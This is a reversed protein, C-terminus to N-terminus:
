AEDYLRESLVYEGINGSCLRGLEEKDKKMAAERAKTSSVGGGLGEVLEIRDAWGRDWGKGVSKGDGNKLQQLYDDQEAKAGWADDARYTVRLRHQSFLPRVSSLTHEPPYYKTDLIRTLTDFGVIHNQELPSSSISSYLPDATIAASKHLFYPHKTLAIDITIDADKSVSQLVNEAMMHMMVLRDEFAAPKPAKDANQTALLLLLRVPASNGASALASTAIHLHALTPPNFSSDLVFLQELPTAPKHVPEPITRVIRLSSSSGAFAQLAARSTARLSSPTHM